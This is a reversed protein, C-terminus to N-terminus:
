QLIEYNCTGIKISRLIIPMYNGDGKLISLKQKFYKIESSFYIEQINLIYM